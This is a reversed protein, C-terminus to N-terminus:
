FDGKAVQLCTLGAKRWMEVAQDRDDLVYAIRDKPLLELIEEKVEFDDRKDGWARLFLHVYRRAPDLSPWHRDLWDETAIGCADVGRASVVLVNHFYSLERVLNFIPTIPTDESAKAFFGDWDKKFPKDTAHEPATLFHLRHDVNALTGDIDVVVFTEHPYLARDTWDIFGNFLAFREIVARGVRATGERKRDREICTAIPTDIEVIEVEVGHERALRLWPARAGETLNTNDVIISRGAKLAERGRAVAEVKMAAEDKRNFTWDPGYLELRLEDYNIRERFKPNEAVWALAHKSKGSGPLGTIIVVVPKQPLITMGTLFETM